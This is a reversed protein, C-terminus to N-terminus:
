RSASTAMTMSPPEVAMQASNPDKLQYVIADKARAIQAKGDIKVSTKPAPPFRHKAPKGNNEAHAQGIMAAAVLAAILLPKM